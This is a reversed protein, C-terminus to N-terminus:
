IVQDNIKQVENSKCVFRAHQARDLRVRIKMTGTEWEIVTGFRAGRMWLDFHPSIEVRDGVQYPKGNYDLLEPLRSKKIENDLHKSYAKCLMSQAKLIKSEKM